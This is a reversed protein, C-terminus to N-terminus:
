YALSGLNSKYIHFCFVNLSFILLSTLDHAYPHHRLQLKLAAACLWVVVAITSPYAGEGELELGNGVKAYVNESCNAM